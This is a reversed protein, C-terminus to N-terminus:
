IYFGIMASIFGVIISSLVYIIALKIKNTQIVKFQKNIIAKFLM